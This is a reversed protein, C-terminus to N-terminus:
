KVITISNYLKVKKEYSFSLPVDIAWVRTTSVDSFLEAAKKKDPNFLTNTRKEKQITTYPGIKWRTDM